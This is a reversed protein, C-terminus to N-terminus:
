FDFEDDGVPTFAPDDDQPDDVPTDTPEVPADNADTPAVPTDDVPVATPAKVAGCGHQKDWGKDTNEDAVAVTEDTVASGNPEDLNVDDAKEGEDTKTDEDAKVPTDDVPAVPAPTDAPKSENVPTVPAVSVPAKVLKEMAQEYCEYEYSVFGDATLKVVALCQGFAEYVPVLPLYAAAKQESNSVILVSQTFYRKLLIEILKYDLRDEQTGNLFAIKKQNVLTNLRGIREGKFASKATPDQIGKYHANVKDVEPAFLRVKTTENFADFVSLDGEILSTGDVFFVLDFKKVDLSM